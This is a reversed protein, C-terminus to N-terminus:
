PAAVPAPPADGTRSPDGADTSRLWGALVTLAAGLYVLGATVWMIAGALHQDALQELRWPLTTTAYGRYWPTQAFALLLALLSEAGDDLTASVRPWGPARM